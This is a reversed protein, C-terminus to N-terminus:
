PGPTLTSPWRQPLAPFLPRDIEIHCAKVICAFTAMGGATAKITMPHGHYPCKPAPKDAPPNMTSSTGLSCHDTILPPSATFSDPASAHPSTM